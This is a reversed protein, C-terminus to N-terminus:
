ASGLKSVAINLSHLVSGLIRRRKNVLEARGNKVERMINRKTPSEVDVMMYSTGIQIPNHADDNALEPMGLSGEYQAFGDNYKEVADLGEQNFINESLKKVDGGGMRM